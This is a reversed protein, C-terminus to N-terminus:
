YYSILFACLETFSSTREDSHSYEQQTVYAYYVSSQLPFNESILHELINFSMCLQRHQLLKAFLAWKNSDERLFLGLLSHKVFTPSKM